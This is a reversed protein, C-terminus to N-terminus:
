SMKSGIMLEVTSCTARNWTRAKTGPSSQKTNANQTKKEDGTSMSRSERVALFSQEIEEAQIRM